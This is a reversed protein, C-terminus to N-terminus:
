AFQMMLLLKNKNIYVEVEQHTFNYGMETGLQVTLEVLSARDPAARLQEKLSSNQLILYHFQKVQQSM